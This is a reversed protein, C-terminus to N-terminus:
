PHQELVGLTAREPAVLPVPATPLSCDTPSNDVQLEAIDGLFSATGDPADGVTFTSTAMVQRLGNPADSSESRVGDIFMCTKGRPNWGAEIFRWTSVAGAAGEARTGCNPPCNMRQDLVEFRWKTAGELTLQWAAGTGTANGARVVTRTGLAGTRRVWVRVHVPVSLSPNGITEGPGFLSGRLRRGNASFAGVGDWRAFAASTDGELTLDPGQTAVATAGYLGVHGALPWSAALVGPAAPPPHPLTLNPQEDPVPAQAGGRVFLALPAQNDAPLLTTVAPPEEPTAELSVIRRPLLTWAGNSCQGLHVDRLGDVDSEALVADNLPIVLSGNTDDTGM